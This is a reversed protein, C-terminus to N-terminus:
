HAAGYAKGNKMTIGKRAMLESVTLIDYDNKVLWRCVKDMAKVTTPHIDHMLIISGDSVSRKVEKLIKKPNKSRWDETDVNWLVMPHKLWKRMRNSIAGYPPRVLTVDYGSVKKVVKATRDIQKNVDKMKLESLNAHSWSHNGIEHGAAVTDKVVQARSAVRNGVVFFTAHANYKALVKLLKPTSELDPGDDFSFAVAKSRPKPVPTATPKVPAPTPTATAKPQETKKTEEKELEVMKENQRNSPKGYPLLVVLLFSLFIMGIAILVKSNKQKKKWEKSQRQERRKATRSNYGKIQSM